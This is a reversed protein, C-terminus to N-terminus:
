PGATVLSLKYNLSVCQLYGRPRDPRSVSGRSADRAAAPLDRGGPHSIEDDNQVAAPDDLDAGVVRQTLGVSKVGLQEAQLGPVEDLRICRVQGPHRDSAQGITM